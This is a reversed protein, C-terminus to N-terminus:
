QVHCLLAKIRQQIERVECDAEVISAKRMDTLMASSLSGLGKFAVQLLPEVDYVRGVRSELITRLQTDHSCSSISSEFKKLLALAVRQLVKAGELMLCDWVRVTTEPPLATCFAASFWEATTSALSCGLKQLREHVRPLKRQVLKAFVKQEVATGLTVEGTCAPFLRDEYMAVLTWFAKEENELGMVSLLFAAVSCIARAHSLGENHHAAALLLRRLVEMGQRTTLLSHQKRSLYLSRLDDEVAYAVDEAVDAAHMSTYYGKDHNLQKECGGSLLFWADTRTAIPIGKRVLYKYEKPRAVLRCDGTNATLSVGSWSKALKRAQQMSAERASQEDETLPPLLYGYVDKQLAM